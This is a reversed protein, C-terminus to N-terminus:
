EEAIVDEIRMDTGYSDGVVPVEVAFVNHNRKGPRFGTRGTAISRKGPRFRSRGVAMSRKGPRFGTRGTAASRKGMQTETLLSFGHTGETALGHPLLRAMREFSELEERKPSRKGPRFRSRGLAASRKQAEQEAGIPFGMLSDDPFSGVLDPYMDMFARKGPRFNSRGLTMSRKNNNPSIAFRDFFYRPLIRPFGMSSPRFVGERLYQIQTNDDGLIEEGYSVTSLCVFATAVAIIHHVMSTKMKYDLKVSLPYIHRRRSSECYARIYYAQCKL